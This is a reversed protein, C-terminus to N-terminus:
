FVFIPIFWSVNETKYWDDTTNIQQFVASHQESFMLHAKAFLLIMQKKDDTSGSITVLPLPPNILNANKLFWAPSKKFSSSM